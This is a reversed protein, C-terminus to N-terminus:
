RVIVVQGPAPARLGLREAAAQELRAPGTEAALEITLEHLEGDLREALVRADSLAYGLRGVELRTWVHFLGIALVVAGVTANLRASRWRASRGVEAASARRQKRSARGRRDTPRRLWSALPSSAEARGLYGFARGVGSFRLEALV